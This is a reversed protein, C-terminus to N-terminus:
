LIGPESNWELIAGSIIESPRFDLFNRPPMGGSGGLLHAERVKDGLARSAVQGFLIQKRRVYIFGMM